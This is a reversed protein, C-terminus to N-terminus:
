VLESQTLKSGAIKLTCVYVYISHNMHLIQWLKVQWDSCFANKAQQQLSIKGHQSNSFQRYRTVQAESGIVNM